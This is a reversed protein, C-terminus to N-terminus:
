DEARVARQRRKASGREDDAQVESSSNPNIGRLLLVQLDEGTSLHLVPGRVFRYRDGVLEVVSPGVGIINDDPIAAIRQTVDVARGWVDYANTSEAIVGASVSGHEIGIAMTLGLNHTENIKKLQALMELSMELARRTNDLRPSNMDCVCLYGDAMPRIIEMGLREAASNFSRVLTNLIHLGEIPELESLQETRRIDAFLVTVNDFADVINEEGNRYREAVSPPFKATLISENTRVQQAIEEKQGEIGAVMENFVETFRGIEDRTDVDVQISTDGAKVAEAGQTLKEIPRMFLRTFALALMVTLLVIAALGLFMRRGFTGVAAYAEDADMEATIVWDLDGPLKLPGFASLVEEGGYGRLTMISDQGVAALQINESRVELNLLPGRRTMAEWDGELMNNRMENIFGASDILYARSLSRLTFDDADILVTEGTKGLGNEEWEGGYNMIDNIRDIPLQIALMGLFVGDDVVPAGAFAAPLGFSPRYNTFDVLQTARLDGNTKVLQFLDALGSNRYPGYSLNTAFDVEKAVTYVITGDASVLFADYFGFEEKFAKLWDNHKKHVEAYVTYDGPAADLDARRSVPMPNRVMYHTQLFCGGATRPYFTSLEQRAAIRKNLQDLFGEYYDSLERGCDITDNEQIAQFAETFARLADRTASNDSLVVVEDSVNEMFSEIEYSKASRIATLREQVQETMAEQGTQFGILIISGAGILSALLLMSMLKSRISLNRWLTQM